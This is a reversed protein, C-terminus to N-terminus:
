ANSPVKIEGLVHHKSMKDEIFDMAEVPDMFWGSPCMTLVEIYSFGRKSMQIDFAKRLYKKLKQTEVPNHVSGRAVYTTGPVAALLECMGLPNGYKAPDKGDLTTKTRQGPLSAPTAHGGTEATVGNNFCIVTINEGRAAAQVAENVGEHILDGDGQITFILHEPLVRKMGTAMAPARGHLAQQYDVDLLRIGQIYCGVGLAVVIQGRLGLEEIVSGLVRVAVGEGCGPCLHHQADLLVTPREAVKTLDTLPITGQQKM